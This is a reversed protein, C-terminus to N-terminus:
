LTMCSKTHVFGAYSGLYKDSHFYKLCFYSSFKFFFVLVQKRPVKYNELYNVSLSMIGHQRVVGTASSQCHGTRCASGRSDAGDIKCQSYCQM